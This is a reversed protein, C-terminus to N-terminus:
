ELIKLFRYTGDYWFFDAQLGLDINGLKLAAPRKAGRARSEESLVDLMGQLQTIVAHPALHTPPAVLGIAAVEGFTEDGTIPDLMALFARPEADPLPVYIQNTGFMLVIAHSPKGLEIYVTHSLAPRLRRIKSVDYYAVRTALEGSGHLYRPIGSNAILSDQGM